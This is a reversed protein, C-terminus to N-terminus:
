ENKSNGRFLMVVGFVGALLVVIQGILDVQRKNWLISRADELTNPQLPTLNVPRKVVFLLIAAVVLMVLPLWAYKKLKSRMLEDTEKKSLPKTFMIASIFVATILGTCVSLEFMAAFPSDMRFILVSLTASAFALGIVSKLLSKATVSWVTFGTMLILILLNLKM